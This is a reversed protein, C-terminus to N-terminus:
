RLSPWSRAIRTVGMLGVVTAAVMLAMTVLLNPAFPSASSGYSSGQLFWAAKEGVVGWWLATGATVGLMACTVGTAFLAEWRLTRPSFNTRLACRVVVRTWSALTLAVILAWAVFATAYLGSGGNRQAYTLHHSWRSLTVLTGMALVTL